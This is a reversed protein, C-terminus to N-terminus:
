IDTLSLRWFLIQSVWTEWKKKYLKMRGETFLWRFVKATCTNARSNCAAKTCTNAPKLELIVVEPKLELIVLTTSVPATYICVINVKRLKWKGQLIHPTAPLHLAHWASQSLVAHASGRRKGEWPECKGYACLLEIIIGNAPMYLLLHHLVRTDVFDPRLSWIISNLWLLCPTFNDGQTGLSKLEDLLM